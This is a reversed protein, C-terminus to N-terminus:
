LDVGEGGGDDGGDQRHEGLDLVSCRGRPAVVDEPRQQLARLSAASGACNLLCFSCSLCVMSYFVCWPISFVGHFLFCMM